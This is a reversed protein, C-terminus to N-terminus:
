WPRNGRMVEARDRLWAAVAGPSEVRAGALQAEGDDLVEALLDAFAAAADRPSPV